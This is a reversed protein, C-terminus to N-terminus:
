PKRKFKGPAVQALAVNCRPCVPVFLTVDCFDCSLGAVKPLTVPKPYRAAAAAAKGKGTRNGQPGLKRQQDAWVAQSFGPNHTLDESM